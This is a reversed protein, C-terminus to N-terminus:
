CSLPELRKLRSPQDLNRANRGRAAMHLNVTSPSGQPSETEADPGNKDKAAWFHELTQMKEDQCAWKQGQCGM